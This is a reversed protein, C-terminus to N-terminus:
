AEGGEAPPTPADADTEARLREGRARRRAAEAAHVGDARAREAASRTPRRSAPLRSGGVAAVTRRRGSGAGGGRLRWRTRRWRRATAPPRRPRRRARTQRPAGAERSAGLGRAPAAAAARRHGSRRPADGQRRRSRRRLGRAHDRGQQDLGQRRHPRDPHPGRHLRLRHRRPDHAAARPGGLVARLPEDGLRRPPRSCQVKM